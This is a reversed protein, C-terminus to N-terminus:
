DYFPEKIVVPTLGYSETAKTPWLYSIILENPLHVGGIGWSDNSCCATM